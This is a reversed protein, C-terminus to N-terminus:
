GREEALTRVADALQEVDERTSGWGISVRVTGGYAEDELWKHVYAACHYGCRVAIGYDEDLIMGVEEARYGEMWFSVIGIQKGEPMRYVHVGCIEELENLLQQTLQEEKMFLENRKAQVWKIGELCGAIASINPSASEYRGPMMEPMDPNVSDSGTGGTLVTRLPCDSEKVFGGIGFPGYLNKHGAFALFDIGMRKVDIPLLGISQAADVVVVAGYRKALRAIEEIPLIYGTVNSIHTVCVCCPRLVSFRYSLAELDIELNKRLPMQCIQIGERKQIDYLTRIVANHEYPSVYVVDGVNWNLGRLIQNLAVTVSPSFVVKSVDTVNLLDALKERTEDTLRAAERAMRYSGRGTNVALTRNIEDMKSLVCEPKPFTTAAYDMYRIMDEGMNM